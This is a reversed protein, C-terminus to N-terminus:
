RTEPFEDALLLTGAWYRRRKPTGETWRDAPPGGKLCSREEELVLRREIEPNEPDAAALGRVHELAGPLGCGTDLHAGQFRPDPETSWLAMRNTEDLSPGSPCDACDSERRQRFEAFRRDRKEAYRELRPWNGTRVLHTLYTRDCLPMMVHCPTHDLRTEFYRGMHESAAELKGQSRLAWGLFFHAEARERVSAEESRAVQEVAAAAAEPDPMGAEPFLLEFALRLRLDAREPFRDIMGELREAREAPVRGIWSGLRGALWEEDVSPNELLRFLQARSEGRADLDHRLLDSLAEELETD